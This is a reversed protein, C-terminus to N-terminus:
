NKAAKEDEADAERLIERLAERSAEGIDASPAEGAGPEEPVRGAPATLLSWVVWAALLLGVPLLWVRGIRGGGSKRAPSM